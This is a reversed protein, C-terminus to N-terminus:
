LGIKKIISRYWPQREPLLEDCMESEMDKVCGEMQSSAPVCCRIKKWGGGADWVTDIKLLRPSADESDYWYVASTYGMHIEVGDIIVKMEENENDIYQCFTYIILVISSLIILLEGSSSKFINM